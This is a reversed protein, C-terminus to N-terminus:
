HLPRPPGSRGHYMIDRANCEVGTLNSIISQELSPPSQAPPASCLLANHLLPAAATRARELPPPMQLAAAKHETKPDRCPGPSSVSCEM